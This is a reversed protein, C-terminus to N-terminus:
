APFMVLLQPISIEFLIQRASQSESAKVQVLLRECHAHLEQLKVHPWAVMEVHLKALMTQIRKEERLKRRKERLMNLTYLFPNIASNVPLVFIAAVVNVIGPIPTDHSALMGMVGIPFWCCFDTFAILFLRRAINMDQKHRHTKASMASSRIAQYICLQGVGIFLFLLFNLVVFVGFAYQQGPFPRRTIPLPLCIGTHGYFTWDSPMFPIFSLVLGILWVAGCAITASRVTLHLHKKLPLCLVLLRDITILCIVLASVESSLLALFGATKCLGSRTWADQQWIYRGSYHTDAAGIILLYVGMLFDAVCLNAVLVRFGFSTGQKELFVRYILVGVNGSIAMASLAWLFARFVDSRLLDSCSSLEDIPTRCDTTANPYQYFYPCCVRPDDTELVELETLGYFMLKNVRVIENERIDVHLLSTLNEFANEEIDEIGCDMDYQQIEPKPGDFATGGHTWQWLFRYLHSLGAVHTKVRELGVILDRYGYTGLFQATMNRFAESPLVALGADFKERCENEATIASVNRIPFVFRFCSDGTGNIRAVLSAGFGDLDVQLQSSPTQLGLVQLPSAPTSLGSLSSNSNKCLIVNDDVHGKPICGFYDCFVMDRSCADCNEEDSGDHCDPMGNCRSSQVVLETQRTCMFSSRVLPNSRVDQCNKEDSKDGCDDFGDCTMTYHVRRGNDCHLLPFISSHPMDGVTSCPQFSHVFHGDPCQKPPLRDQNRTPPKLKVSRRLSLPMRKSNIKSCVYGYRARRQCSVQKVLGESTMIVCTKNTETPHPHLPGFVTGGQTWEWLFRYLHGLGHTVKQVRELGVILGEIKLLIQVALRQTGPHPLSGLDASHTERCEQAAEAPSVPVDPIVFKLCLTGGAIWGEDCGLHTYNCNDPEDEAALCQPFGDCLLEGPVTYPASCNYVGAEIEPSLTHRRYTTFSLRYSSNQREEDGEEADYDNDPVHLFEFWTTNLDTTMVVPEFAGDGIYTKVEGGHHVRLVDGPQQQEGNVQLNVDLFQLVIGFVDYVKIDWLCYAYTGNGKWEVVTTKPSM